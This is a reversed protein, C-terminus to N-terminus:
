MSHSRVWRKVKIYGLGISSNGTHRCWVCIYVYYASARFCHSSVMNGLIWVRKFIQPVTGAVLKLTFTTFTDQMSKM